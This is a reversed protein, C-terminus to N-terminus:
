GKGLLIAISKNTQVYTCCVNLFDDKIEFMTKFTQYLLIGLSDVPWCDDPLNSSLRSKLRSKRRGRILIQWYAQIIKPQRQNNCYVYECSM